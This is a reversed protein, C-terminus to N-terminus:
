KKLSDNYLAEVDISGNRLLKLLIDVLRGDFQTDRGKELESLVVDLDLRRRYIRNATMADFADAVGIIRAFLPIEAGKLGRAYGGGDYREHHYLVGDTINDILTFDRMIEAGKTVHSKMVDFEEKTLRGPKNLIADSIGIKGIDHVLATHKLAYCDEDSLGLEKGILLAYEAVRISHQSTNEDKADVARSIAQVTQDAMKIQQRALSLERDKAVITRQLKFHAGLWAFWVALLLLVLVLYGRFWLNDQIALEKQIIYTDTEMVTKKDDALVSLRFVNRGAPLNTYQVSSLESRRVIVPAKDVGELCYSVYPDQVGYNIVEPFLEVKVVNRPVKIETDAFVLVRRGDLRASRIMMRYSRQSLGYEAMNMKMVDDVAALYLNGAEDWYNWANATLSTTMGGKYDILEYDTIADEALQESDFIYIGASCPMFIKGHAGPILDFDDFYPISTVAHIKGDKHIHNVGNGTVAFIGKGNPEAVLRMVVESSLGDRRTLQGTVYGEKIVIIGDGNTGALLTGDAQELLCMVGSSGVGENSGLSRIISGGEIFSIGQNGAAALQGNKLRLITRLRNGALGDTEELSRIEGQRTQCVLGRGYTCVWLNGRGDHRICRIRTKGLYDALPDELRRRNTEDVVFLGEDTGIYLKGQWKEVTNTVCKPLAARTFISEFPSSCMKLLGLRSSTFWLNGQYDVLMNDISNNFAPSNIVQARGDASIFGIGNDACVIVRGEHLRLTNLFKLPGCSYSGVATLRNEEVELVEIESGSTGVLLQGAENFVCSTYRVGNFPAQKRAAVKGKRILFLDGEGTVAAVRGKKDAALRIANRVDGVGGVVKLGGDLRAVNLSKATGIYYYGDTSQVISRVSNASLGANDRDLVSVIEQRVFVSVGSDNTGIWLRGVADLYLCNVNKVSDFDKMLQFSIGNYSYLGGYTGVWIIGENTQAIDNAAGCPLGNESNYVTQIYRDYGESDKSLAGSPWLCLFVPLLLALVAKQGSRAEAPKKKERFQRSLKVVYCFLLTNISKDPFDVYFEGVLSAVWLPAGAERLFAVVGDGWLNGVAGEFFILNLPTSILMAMVAAMLGIVMSDFYTEFYKKRAGFGAMIGLAVGTIGYVGPQLGGLNEIVHTAAGVIAGCWPGFAYATLLTGFSDFWVPLSYAFTGQAGLLNVLISFVVFGCVKAPTDFRLVAAVLNKLKHSFCSDRCASPKEM